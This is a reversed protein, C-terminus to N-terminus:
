LMGYTIDIVHRGYNIDINHWTMLVGLHGDAAVPGGRDEQGVANRLRVQLLHSVAQGVVYQTDEEDNDDDICEQSPQIVCM